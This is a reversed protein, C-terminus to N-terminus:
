GAEDDKGPFITRAIEISNMQDGKLRTAFNTAGFFMKWPTMAAPGLLKKITSPAKKLTAGSFVFKAIIGPASM